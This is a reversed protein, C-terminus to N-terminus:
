LDLGNDHIMTLLERIATRGMVIECIPNTDDDSRWAILHLGCGPDSCLGASVSHAKECDPRDISHRAM